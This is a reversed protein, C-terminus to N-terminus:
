MFIYQNHDKDCHQFYQSFNTEDQCECEQIEHEGYIEDENNDQKNVDSLAPASENGNNHDKVELNEPSRSTFFHCTVSHNLSSNKRTGRHTTYTWLRNYVFCVVRAGSSGPCTSATYTFQNKKPTVHIKDKWQGISIKKPYGHPHSVIFM